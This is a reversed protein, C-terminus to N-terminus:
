RLSHLFNTLAPIFIILGIVLSALSAVLVAGAAVDKIIKIKPHFDTTVMDCFIEIASNIMELSIVLGICFLVLLWQYPSISVIFGLTIATIGMVTQLKANRQKSFFQMMGQLAFDVSKIFTKM